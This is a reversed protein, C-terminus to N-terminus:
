GAPVLEVVKWGTEPIDTAIARYTGGSLEVETASAGRKLIQEAMRRVGRISSRAANCADPRGTDKKVADLYRFEKLPPMELLEIAKETAAVIVGSRALVIIPVEERSKLYRESIAATRLDLSVGGQMEGRHYVPATVSVIWGRGAPDAYPEGIWVAQCGPNREADALRFFKFHPNQMRPPYQSDAEFWPYIRSLGNRDHYRAQDVEPHDRITQLFQSDLLETFYAVEKVSETIPVAGSIWLAGTGDNVPKHFAGGRTFEFKRRDIQPLIEARHDYLARAVGAVRSAQHRVRELDAQLEAALRVSESSTKEPTRDCAVLFFCAILGSGLASSTVRGLNRFIWRPPTLAGSPM